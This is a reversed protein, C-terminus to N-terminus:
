LARRRALRAAGCVAHMLSFSPATASSLPRPACRPLCSLSRRASPFAEGALSIRRRGCRPRTRPRRRWRACLSWWRSSSTRSPCSRWRWLSASRRRRWKPARARWTRATACRASRPPSRRRSAHWRRRAVQTRTRTRPTRTHPTRAHTRRSQGRSGGRQAAILPTSVSSASCAGVSEPLELVFTEGCWCAYTNGILDYTWPGLTARCSHTTLFTAKAEEAARPHRRGVDSCFAKRFSGLEGFSLSLSPLCVCLALSALPTHPHPRLPSGGAADDPKSATTAVVALGAGVAVAGVVAVAAVPAASKEAPVSKEAAPTSELTPAQTVLVPTARQAPEAEVPKPVDAIAAPVM